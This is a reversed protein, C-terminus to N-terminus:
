FLGSLLRKAKRIATSGWSRPWAVLSKPGNSSTAGQPIPGYFSTPVGHQQAFETARETLLALHDPVYSEYWWPYTHGRLDPQNYIRLLMLAYLGEKQVRDVSTKLLSHHDFVLNTQGGANCCSVGSYHIDEHIYGAYRMRLTPKYLRNFTEVSHVKIGNSGGDPDSQLNNRIVGYVDPTQGHSKITVFGNEVGEILVEDADVFLIWERKSMVACINRAEAFGYEMLSGRPFSIIKVRDGLRESVYEATGDDSQMDLVVFSDFGAELLASLTLELMARENYTILGIDISSCAIGSLGTVQGQDSETTM